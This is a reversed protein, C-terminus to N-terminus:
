VRCELERGGEIGSMKDAEGGGGGGGGPGLLNQSVCIELLYIILEPWICKAPLIICHALIIHRNIPHSNNGRKGTRIKKKILNFPNYQVSSRSPNNGDLPVPIM